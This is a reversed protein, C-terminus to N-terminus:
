DLTELHSLRSAIYEFGRQEGFDNIFDVLWGYHQVYDQSTQVQAFEGCPPGRCQLDRNRIHFKSNKDFVQALSKLLPWTM